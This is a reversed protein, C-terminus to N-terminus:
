GGQKGESVRGRRYAGPSVGMARSFARSFNHVTSFQLKEAIETVSFRTYALLERARQLRARFIVERPSQGHIERFLRRFHSASLSARRALDEVSLPAEVDHNIVALSETIREYHLPKLSESTVTTGKIMESLIELMLGSLSLPASPGTRAFEVCLRRFLDRIVAHNLLRMRGRWGSIVPDKLPPHALRSYESLDLKGGPMHTDWHSRFPDYLLDFHAWLVHMEPPYGRMEHPMGPPVWFLDNDKVDFSDKGVSFRGEGKEIYVLLYDLLKRNEIFWPKRWQDGAQRVFPRLATLRASNERSPQFVRFEVKKM